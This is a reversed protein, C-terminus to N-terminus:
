NWTPDATIPCFCSTTASVHVHGTATGQYTRIRVHIHVTRGNYWGPYITVFNVSGDGFLVHTKHGEDERTVLVRADPPQRVLASPCIAHIRVLM